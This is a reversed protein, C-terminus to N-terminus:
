GLEKRIARAVKEPGSTKSQNLPDELFKAKGHPHAQDMREHVWIALHEVRPSRDYSVAARLAGEDVDVKGTAKLYGADPRGVAVPVQEQSGEYVEDAWETLGKVAGRRAAAKAKDGYWKVSV